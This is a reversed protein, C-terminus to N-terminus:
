QRGHDEHGKHAGPDAPSDGQSQRVPHIRVGVGDGQDQEGGKVQAGKTEIRGKQSGMPSLYSEGHQSLKPRAAKRAPVPITRNRALGGGSLIAAAPARPQILLM